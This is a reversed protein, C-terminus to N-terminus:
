LPWHAHINTDKLEKRVGALLLEVEERSWGLGKESKPRTFIALTFAALGSLMNEQNWIGADRTLLPILLRLRYRALWMINTAASNALPPSDRGIQKYKKDRPWRNTPWKERVTGVDVFGAETLQREYSLASNPHRGMGGFSEIILKSLRDLASDPLLTGDDSM